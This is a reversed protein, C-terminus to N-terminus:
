GEDRNESQKVCSRADPVRQPSYIVRMRRRVPLAIFTVRQINSAAIIARTTETAGAAPCAVTVDADNAHNWACCPPAATVDYAKPSTAGPERRDFDNLSLLELEVTDPFNVTLSVPEGGNEIADLPQVPLLRALACDQETV